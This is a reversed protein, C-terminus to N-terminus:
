KKELRTKGGRRWGHQGRTQSRYIWPSDQNKDRFFLLQSFFFVITNPLRWMVCSFNSFATKNRRNPRGDVSIQWSFPAKRFRERFWLFKFIDAKRKRTSPFCKSFPSKRFRHRWSFWAMETVSNETFVFGFHGTIKSQQTKIRRRRLTSPFCKSGKWLSVETKLNRRRLTSPGLFAKFIARVAWFLQFLFRSNLPLKYQLKTANRCNVEM